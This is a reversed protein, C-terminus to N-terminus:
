VFWGDQVSGPSVGSLIIQGGGSLLLVLDGAGDTTTTYTQGNLDIRDGEGPNFDVLVDDGSGAIFAFTDAGTGGWLTDDGAGGWLTDNGAGGWLEDDGVGGFLLDYGAGGYVIDDGSGGYLHDAGDGGGLTDNGEGGYIVDDGASGWVEDNGAGGGLTDDGAGGYITDNGAGGWVEDDGGGAQVLDDGGRAYIIDAGATGSIIDNGDTGVIPPRPGPSGSDPVQIFITLPASADSVNGAPDVSRATIAHAGAALVTTSTISYAGGSVVGSGIEVSGAYLIVTDGDIGTGNFTPTRDRTINDSDSGGTDSQPALDPTSPAPSAMRDVTVTLVPSFASENGAPDVSRTKIAYTGDAAASSISIEYNGDSDVAASGARIENVFLEVTSGVTGTGTFTLLDANTLNDDDAVGSDASAALDPASPAEDATRDVTVTLTASHLSKNGALDLAQVSYIQPGEPVTVQTSFTYAGDDGATATGVLVGNQFLWIESNSEATGTFTLVDAKTLNDTSSVGTDSGASLSPISPADPGMTDIVVILAASPESESGGSPTSTVTMAYSGDALAGTTIQWAGGSVTASGVLKGNAYLNIVDGDTGTGIFTPTTDSTINDRISFGTDSNPHLEPAPLDVLAQSGFDFDSM